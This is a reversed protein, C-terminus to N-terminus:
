QIPRKPKKSVSLEILVHIHKILDMNKTESYDIEELIKEKRLPLHPEGPLIREVEIKGERTIYYGFDGDGDGFIECIYKCDIKKTIVYRRKGEVIVTYLITEKYEEEGIVEIEEHNYGVFHAIYSM